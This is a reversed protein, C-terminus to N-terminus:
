QFVKYYRYPKSSKDRVLLKKELGARLVQNVAPNAKGLQEVLRPQTVPTGKPLENIKSWVLESVSGSQGRNAEDAQCLKAFASIQKSENQKANDDNSSKNSTNRNSM